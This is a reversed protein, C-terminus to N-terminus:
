PQLIARGEARDEEDYVSLGYILLFKYESGFHKKLWKKEDATLSESAPTRRQRSAQFAEFRRRESEAWRAHIMYAGSKSFPSPGVVPGVPPPSLQVELLPSQEHPKFYAVRSGDRPDIICGSTGEDSENKWKFKGLPGITNCLAKPAHLVTTLRFTGHSGPGTQSPSTEVPLNVSGVGLVEMSNEFLDTVVTNFPTYNHGFWSRDKAVSRNRTLREIM